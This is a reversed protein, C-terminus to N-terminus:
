FRCRKLPARYRGSYANQNAKCILTTEHRYRPVLHLQLVNVGMGVPVKLKLVKQVEVTVQLTQHLLSMYLM